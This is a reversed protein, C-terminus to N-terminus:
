DNDKSIQVELFMLRAGLRNCAKTIGPCDIGRIKIISNLECTINYQEKIRQRRARLRFGKVQKM